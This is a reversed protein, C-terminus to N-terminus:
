MGPWFIRAHRRVVRCFAHASLQLNGIALRDTRRSGREDRRHPRFHVVGRGSRAHRLDVHHRTRTAVRSHGAAVLHPNKRRARVAARRAAIGAAQRRARSRTGRAAASRGVTAVSLARRAAAAQDSAADRRRPQNIEAQPRHTIKLGFGINEAVTMNPFLAYSQFVM